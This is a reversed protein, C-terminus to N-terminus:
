EFILKKVVIALLIAVEAITAGGLWRVFTQPLDIQRFGWLIIVAFTEVVVFLFTGVLTLAIFNHIEFPMSRVLIWIALLPLMGLVILAIGMALGTVVRADKFFERPELELQQKPHAPM